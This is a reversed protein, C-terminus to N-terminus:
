SLKWVPLKNCTNLCKETVIHEMASVFIEAPKDFNGYFMSETRILCRLGKVNECIWFLMMM